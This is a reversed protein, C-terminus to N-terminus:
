GMLHDAMLTDHIDNSVSQAMCATFQEQDQMKRQLRVFSSHYGRKKIFHFRSKPLAMQAFRLLSILPVQALEILTEGSHDLSPLFLAV